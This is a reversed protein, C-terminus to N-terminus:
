TQKTFSFGLALEIFAYIKIYETIRILYIHFSIFIIFLHMGM